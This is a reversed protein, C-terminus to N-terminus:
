REDILSSIHRLLCAPPLRRCDFVEKFHCYREVLRADQVQFGPETLKAEFLVGDLRMDVETKDVLNATLPVRPRFGFDPIAGPGIGLVSALDWNNTIGPYCFVNMLLADSSMCSDLERWIFETRPLARRCHPHVKLLRRRWESRSLIARYSARIFNGHQRGCESLRYVVVGQEGSITARPRGHDVAYSVNRMTLEQRLLGAYDM